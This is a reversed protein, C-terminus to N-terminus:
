PNGEVLKALAEGDVRMGMWESMEKAGIVKEYFDISPKNWRLVSWELRGGDIAVVIKALEAILKKGYGQKRNSPQVYLDELYM